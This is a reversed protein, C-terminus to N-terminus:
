QEGLYSRTENVWAINDEMLKRHEEGLPRIRNSYVGEVDLGNIALLDYRVKNADFSVKAIMAILRIEECPCFCVVEGVGGNAIFEKQKGPFDLETCSILNGNIPASGSGFEENAM